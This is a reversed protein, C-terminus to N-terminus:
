LATYVGEYRFELEAGAKVLVKTVEVRGNQAAVFLPRCTDESALEVSYGRDVLEQM